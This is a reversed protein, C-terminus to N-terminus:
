DLISIIDNLIKRLKEKNLKYFRYKGVKQEEIIGCKKLESLNHSILTQEKDLISILGCVPLTAQALLFIISSRIKNHFIKKLLMINDLLAKNPKEVFLDKIYEHIYELCRHGLKKRIAEEVKIPM